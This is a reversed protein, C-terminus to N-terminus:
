FVFEKPFFLKIRTGAAVRVTTHPIRRSGVVREMERAISTLTRQKFYDKGQISTLTGFPSMFDMYPYYNNLQSYTYGRIVGIIGAQLVRELLHKDVDTANGRRGTLNMNRIGPSVRIHRGDPLVMTHFTFYLSDKNFGGPVSEGIFRTGAPLLLEKAASYLNYFDRDIFVKVPVAEGSSVVDNEVIGDLFSGAPIVKRGEKEKGGSEEKKEEKAEFAILKTSREKELMRMKKELERLKAVIELEKARMELRKMKIQFMELEYRLKQKEKLIKEGFPDDPKVQGSSSPAKEKAVKQIQKAAAAKLEALLDELEAKRTSATKSEVVAKPIKKEKDKGGGASFLLILFLVAAAIGALKVLKARSAEPSSIFGPTKM